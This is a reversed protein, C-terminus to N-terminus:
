VDLSCRLKHRAAEQPMKGAAFRQGLRGLHVVVYLGKEPHQEVSNEPFEDGGHGAVAGLLLSDARAEALCITVRRCAVDEVSPCRPKGSEELMVEKIAVDEDM